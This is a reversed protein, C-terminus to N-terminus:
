GHREMLFLTRESGDIRQHRVTDFCRAFADRFGEETYGEYIDPRTALLRQVQSDSKPVFEIILRPALRAFFEALAPLPVNNGIALHHVLALAMALDADARDLLSEREALGWGIAPSPNTLDQVLPLVNPVEQERVALYHREVAGPDIDWAVVRAGSQAALSSFEGTNAGLDWITAPAPSLAAIWDSVLRRKEGFADASYNTSGYYDAWVTSGPDWHLGEITSRLHDVLGLAAHEGVSASQPRPTGDAKREASAHAHLHLTLGPKLRTKGPLSASALDLPVGDLFTRSLLGADPSVYAAMALPALFHRCFQRYARWPSGPDRLEFSLTDILIPRGRLFQINYASADKLTMGARLAHEQIDLTALAADKLQSFCWEYPQSWFPVREPRLVAVAGPTPSRAADVEEHPILLGLEQLDRLLGSSRLAAWHASYSADVHRYLVGDERFVYGSPDRFSAPVAEIM